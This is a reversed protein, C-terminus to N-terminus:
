SSGRKPPHTSFVKPISGPHRREQAELKEFFSVFANPDYGAKLLARVVGLRGERVAFLFATFGSNSRAHLDAGAKVLADIVRQCAEQELGWLRMAQTVNLRLGPMELFENRVRSIISDLEAAAVM